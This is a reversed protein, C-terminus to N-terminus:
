YLRSENISYTTSDREEDMEAYCSEFFKYGEDFTFYSDLLDTGIFLPLDSNSKIKKPAHSEKFSFEGRWFEVDHFGGGDYQICHFSTSEINMNCFTTDRMKAYNFDCNHITNKPPIYDSMEQLIYHLHDMGFISSKFKADCFSVNIIEDNRFESEYFYSNSFDVNELLGSTFHLHIFNLKRLDLRGNIIRKQLSKERERSPLGVLFDLANQLDQHNEVSYSKGYDGDDKIAVKDCFFDYIINAVIPKQAESANNALDELVNIGACRMVISENTLLEVGRGLRENFSQDVHAQVQDSFTKQRESAILFGIAGGITALCLIFPQLLVSIVTPLSESSSLALVYIMIAVVIFLTVIIAWLYSEYKVMIKTIIKKM